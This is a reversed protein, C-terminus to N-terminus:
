RDKIFQLFTFHCKCCFVNGGKTLLSAASHHVALLRQGSRVAIHFGSQIKQTFFAQSGGSLFSATYSGLANRECIDIFIFGHAHSDFHVGLGVKHRLVSFELSKDFGARLSNGFLVRSIHLSQKVTLSGACLHCHVSQQLFLDESDTLIDFNPTEDTVFADHGSINVHAALDGNQHFKICSRLDCRLSLELFKSLIHGHLNCRYGGQIQITIRHRCVNHLM